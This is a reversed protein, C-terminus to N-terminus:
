VNLRATQLGFQGTLFFVKIEWGRTLLIQFWHKFQFSVDHPNWFHLFIPSLGCHLKPFSACLVSCKRATYGTQYLKIKKCFTLWRRWKPGQEQINQSQNLTTLTKAQYSEMMRGKNFLNLGWIQHPLTPISPAWIQWMSRPQFKTSVLYILRTPM